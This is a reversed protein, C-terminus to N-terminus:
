DKSTHVVLAFNCERASSCYSYGFPHCPNAARCTQLRLRPVGTRTFGVVTLSMPLAPTLESLRESSKQARVLSTNSPETHLLRGVGLAVSSHSRATFCRWFGRLGWSWMWRHSNWGAWYKEQDGSCPLRTMSISNQLQPYQVKAEEHLPEPMHLLTDLTRLLKANKKADM